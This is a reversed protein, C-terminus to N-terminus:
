FKQPFSIEKRKHVEQRPYGVDTDWKECFFQVIPDKSQIDRMDTQEQVEQVIKKMITNISSASPMTKMKETRHISIANIDVDRRHCTSPETVM